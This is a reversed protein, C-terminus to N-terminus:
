YIKSLRTYRNELDLATRGNQFKFNNLITKWRAGYRGYGTKLNIIEESTFPM